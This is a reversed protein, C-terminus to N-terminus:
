FPSINLYQGDPATNTFARQSGFRIKYMFELSGISFNDIDNLDSLTYDYAAGIEHAFDSNKGLMVTFMGIVSEFYPGVRDGGLRVGVGLTYRQLFILRNTIDIDPVQVESGGRDNFEVIKLLISPLYHVTSANSWRPFMMGAHVFYHRYQRAFFQNTAANHLGGGDGFVSESINWNLINPVGLGVYYRDNDYIYIGAGANPYFRMPLDNFVPDAEQDLVARERRDDFMMLSAQLGLSVKTMGKTPIIFSFSPNITGMMSYGVHDFHMVAGFGYRGDRLRLDLNASVSHPTLKNVAGNQVSFWQDRYLLTFKSNNSTGTYAPNLFQQNYPYFSFQADQQAFLGTGLFILLAFLSVHRM